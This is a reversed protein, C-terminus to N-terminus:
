SIKGLNHEKMYRNGHDGSYIAVLEVSADLKMYVHAYLNNILSENELSWKQFDRVLWEADTIGSCDYSRRIVPYIWDKFKEDVDLADVIKLTRDLVSVFEEVNEQKLGNLLGTKLWDM